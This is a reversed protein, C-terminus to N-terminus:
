IVELGRELYANRLYDKIEKDSAQNIIEQALGQYNNLPLEILAKLYLEKVKSFGFIKAAQWIPQSILASVVYPDSKELISQFFDQGMFSNIEDLDAYCENEKNKLFSLILEYSHKGSFRDSFPISVYEDINLKDIISEQMSLAALINGTGELISKSQSTEELDYKKTLHYDIMHSIEHGILTHEISPDKFSLYLGDRKAEGNGLCKGPETIKTLYIPLAQISAQGIKNLIKNYDQVMVTAFYYMQVYALRDDNLNYCYRGQEDPVLNEPLTKIDILKNRLIGGDFLPLDVEMLELRGNVTKAICGKSGTTASAFSTVFSM